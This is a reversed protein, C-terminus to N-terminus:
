PVRGASRSGTCIPLNQYTLTSSLVRKDQTAYARTGPPRVVQLPVLDHLGALLGHSTRNYTLVELDLMSRLRLRWDSTGAGIGEALDKDENGGELDGSNFHVTGGAGIDFKAPGYSVGTDDIADIVVEGSPQLVARLAGQPYSIWM